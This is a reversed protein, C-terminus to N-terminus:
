DRVPSYQFEEYTQQSAPKVGTSSCFDKYHNYRRDNKSFQQFSIPQLGFDNVCLDAYLSYDFKLIMEENFLEIGM